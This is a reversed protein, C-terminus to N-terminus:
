TKKHICKSNKVATFVSKKLIEAQQQLGTGAATKTGVKKEFTAYWRQM